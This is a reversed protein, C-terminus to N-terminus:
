REIEKQKNKRLSKHFLIRGILIDIGSGSASRRVGSKQHGCGGSVITHVWVVGAAKHFTQQFDAGCVADSGILLLHGREAVNFCVGM